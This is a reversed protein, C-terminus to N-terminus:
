VSGIPRSTSQNNGEGSMGQFDPVMFVEVTPDHGSLNDGNPQKEYDAWQNMKGTSVAMKAPIAPDTFGKGSVKTEMESITGGSFVTRSSFSTSAM